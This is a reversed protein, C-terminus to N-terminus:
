IWRGALKRAMFFQLEGLLEGVADGSREDAMEKSLGAGAQKCGFRDREFQAEAEATEVLEARVVQESASM